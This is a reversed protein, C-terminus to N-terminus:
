LFGLPKRRSNVPSRLNTQLNFHFQAIKEFCQSVLGLGKLHCFGVFIIASCFCEQRTKQYWFCLTLFAEGERKEFENKIPIWVTLHWYQAENLVKRFQCHFGFSFLVSFSQKGLTTCVLAPVLGLKELKLSQKQVIKLGWTSGLRLKNIKELKLSWNELRM